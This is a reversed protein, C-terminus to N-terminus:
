SPASTRVMTVHSVQWRMSELAIPTALASGSGTSAVGTGCALAAGTALARGACAAFGAALGAAGLLGLAFAAVAFADSEFLRAGFFVL